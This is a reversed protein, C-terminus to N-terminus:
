RRRLANNQNPQEDKCNSCKTLQLVATDGDVSYVEIEDRAEIGLMDRFEKPILIRGLNDIKCIKTKEMIFDGKAYNAPGFVVFLRAPPLNRQM